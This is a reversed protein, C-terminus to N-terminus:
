PKLWTKVASLIVTVGLAQIVIFVGLVQWRFAEVKRMRNEMDTWRTSCHRMQECQQVRSFLEKAEEKLTGVAEEIRGRWGNTVVGHREEDPM